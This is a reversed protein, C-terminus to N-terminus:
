RHVDVSVLWTDASLTQIWEQFQRSNFEKRNDFDAPPVGQTGDLEHLLGDLDIWYFPVRLSDLQIDGLRACDTQHPPLPERDPEATTVSFMSGLRDALDYYRIQVEPFGGIHFDTDIPISLTGAQRRSLADPTLTFSGRWRGGVVWWDWEGCGPETGFETTYVLHHESYSNVADALATDVGEPPTDGCLAVILDYHM